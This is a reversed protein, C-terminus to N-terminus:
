RTANSRPPPLRSEIAPITKTVYEAVLASFTFKAIVPLKAARKELEDKVQRLWPVEEQLEQEAGVQEYRTSLAMLLNKQDPGSATAVAAAFKRPPIHQLIGRRAFRSPGVNNFCVDRYFALSDRTMLKFVDSALM